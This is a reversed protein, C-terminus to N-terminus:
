HLFHDRFCVMWGGDEVTRLLEWRLLWGWLGRRAHTKRTCLFAMMREKTHIGKETAM